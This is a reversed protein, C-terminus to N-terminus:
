PIWNDEDDAPALNTLVSFDVSKFEAFLANAKEKTQQLSHALSAAWRLGERMQPDIRVEIEAKRPHDKLIMAATQM